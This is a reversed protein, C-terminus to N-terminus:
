NMLQDRSMVHNSNKVFIALLGFEHNTLHIREGDPTTLEYATLDLKWGSFKATTNRGRGSSNQTSYKYTRRLVSRVRAVLERLNFPKTVYDDAGVELGVIRDVLDSKGTLIIIPIDSGTRIEKALTLGDVDPLGLDLIVLDPVISDLSNRMADGSGATDVRYGERELSLVVLKRIQPDDDVVLIRKHDAM